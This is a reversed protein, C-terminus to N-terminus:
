DYEVKTCCCLFWSVFASWRGSVPTSGVRWAIWHNEDKGIYICNNKKAWDILGQEITDQYEGCTRRFECADWISQAYRNTPRNYQPQEPISPATADIRPSVWPDSYIVGADSWMSELDKLVDHVYQDMMSKSDHENNLEHFVDVDM